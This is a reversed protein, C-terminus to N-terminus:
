LIEHNEKKNQAYRHLIKCHLTKNYSIDIETRPNISYYKYGNSSIVQGDDLWLIGTIADFYTKMLNDVDPTTTPRIKGMEALVIDTKSFSKPIEMYFKIKVKVEADIIDFNEIDIQQKIQNRIYKKNKAANPVYFRGFKTTRPRQTQMPIGDITLHINYWKEQKIKKAKELINSPNKINLNDMLEQIHKKM